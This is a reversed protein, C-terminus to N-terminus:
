TNAKGKDALRSSSTCSFSVSMNLFSIASPSFLTGTHRKKTTTHAASSSSTSTTADLSVSATAQAHSTVTATAPRSITTQALALSVNSQARAQSTRGSSVFAQLALGLVLTRASIVLSM